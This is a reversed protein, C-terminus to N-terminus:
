FLAFSVLATVVGVLMALAMVRVVTNRWNRSEIARYRSGLVIPVARFPKKFGM